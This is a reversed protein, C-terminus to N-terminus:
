QVETQQNIDLHSALISYLATPPAAYRLLQSVQELCLQVPNIGAKADGGLFFNSHQLTAQFNQDFM